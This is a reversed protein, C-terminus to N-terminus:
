RRRLRDSARFLSKVELAAFRIFGHCSAVALIHTLRPVRNIWAWFMPHSGLVRGASIYLLWLALSRLILRLGQWNGRVELVLRLYEEKSMGLGCRNAAQYTFSKGPLMVGALSFKLSMPSEDIHLGVHEYGDIHRFVERKPTISFGRPDEVSKGFYNETSVVKGGDAFDSKFWNSLTGPHVLLCGIPTAVPVVLGDSSRTTRGLAEWFDAQIHAEPFHSLVSFHPTPAADDPWDLLCKALRCFEQSASRQFVHDEYTLLLILDPKDRLVTELANNWSGTSDLRFDHASVLESLEEFRSPFDKSRFDVDEGFEIYVHASHFEIGILSSLTSSLYELRDVQSTSGDRRVNTVLCTWLLSVKPKAQAPQGHKSIM